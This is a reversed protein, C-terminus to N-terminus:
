RPVRDAPLARESRVGAAVLREIVVDTPVQIGLRCYLTDTEAFSGKECLKNSPAGGGCVDFYPCTERCARVGAAVEAAVRNFKESRTAAHLTDTLVNGFVLSGHVPHRASLLEPSFTSFDGNHAVTVVRFPIVLDNDPVEDRSLLREGAKELERIWQYGGREGALEAYRALFRHMAERMAPDTLSSRGNVGEVEEVNFSVYSGGLQAFFRFLVEPEALSARTLVAITHFPVGEARLCAIGQMVKAFTGRGGRTKRNLDHLHEPGDVSVGVVVEHEKLFACWARDILTGNTQLGHTIRLHAPKLRDIVAFAHRYYALPLVLPEGAHWLVHITRSGDAAEFVRSFTAELVQDSMRSRDTRSALYCYNCDINCFPTPQVVVLGIDMLAAM